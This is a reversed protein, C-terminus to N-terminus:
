QVGPSTKISRRLSTTATASANDVTAGTAMGALKESYSCSDPEVGSSVLRYLSNVTEQGGPLVAILPPAATKQFENGAGFSIELKWIPWLQYPSASPPRPCTQFSKTWTLQATM